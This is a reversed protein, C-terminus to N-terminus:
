RRPSAEIIVETRRRLPENVNGTRAGEDGVASVDFVPAPWGQVALAERVAQARRESLNLNAASGGTSDSLGTVSVKTVDCGALRQGTMQLLQLAAPTLQAQGETFYVEVRQESCNVPAVLADRAAYNGQTGCAAMALVGISGLASFGIRKVMSM